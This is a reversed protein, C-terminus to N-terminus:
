AIIEGRHNMRYCKGTTGYNAEVIDLACDNIMDKRIAKGPKRSRLRRMAHGITRYLLTDDKAGCISTFPRFVGDACLLMGTPIHVIHIAPNNM